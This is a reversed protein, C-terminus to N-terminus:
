PRHPDGNSECIYGAYDGFTPIHRRFSSRSISQLFSPIRSSMKLGAGIIRRSVFRKLKKCGMPIAGTSATRSGGVPLGRNFGGCESPGPGQFFWFRRGRKSRRETNVQSGPATFLEAVFSKPLFAAGRRWSAGPGHATAFRVWANVM